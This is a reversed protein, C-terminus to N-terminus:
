YGIFSYLLTMLADAIIVLFVSVVVAKTAGRGVGQADGSAQFGCYCGALTILISFVACKLVGLIFTVEDLVNFTREIYAAAPIDMFTVGVTMGGLLGAADGFVTLLPMAILMAALKPLVLFSEPSVGLTKLAHIEENVKMTGIEAAFASGARGTAIVAVMLPGFEKLVAFGVLDVIFIDTDTIYFDSRAVSEKIHRVRMDLLHELCKALHMTATIKNQSFHLAFLTSAAAVTFSTSLIESVFIEAASFALMIIILPGVLLWTTVALTCRGVVSFTLLFPLTSILKILSLKYSM